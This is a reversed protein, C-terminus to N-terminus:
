RISSRLVARGDAGRSYPTRGAGKLQLEWRQGRTDLAEGLSIARGDGLQGAWVGFQHGGYNSAWPQMGELLANGGFLEAWHVDEREHAGLGLTAAMAPSWAVVRPAQVPTPALLSYAAGEVQRVREGREADGPLERVFANDFMWQM